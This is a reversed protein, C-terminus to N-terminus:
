AFGKFTVALLVRVKTGFEANVAEWSKITSAAGSLKGKQWRM